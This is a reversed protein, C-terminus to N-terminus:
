RIEPPTFSKMSPLPPARVAQSYSSQFLSKLRM